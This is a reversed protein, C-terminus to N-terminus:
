LELDFPRRPGAAEVVALGWAPLCFPQMGPSQGTFFSLL